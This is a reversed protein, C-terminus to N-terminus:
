NTNSGGTTTVTTTTTANGSEVTVDGGTNGNASNGGTSTTSLVTTQALTANGQFVANKCATIILVGNVSAAGNDSITVDTPESGCCCGQQEGGTNTNNGGTVTVDTTTRAVGSTVTTSGGTNGNASNKGTKTKTGVFTSAGTINGQAVVKKNLKVIAAGNLSGAGNGTITTGAALATGPLLVAALMSGTIAATTLKQKINM